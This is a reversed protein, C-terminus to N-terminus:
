AKERVLAAMTIVISALGLGVFGIWIFQVGSSEVAPELALEEEAVVEDNREQVTGLVDLDATVVPSDRFLTQPTGLSPEVGIDASQETACAALGFLSISVVIFAVVLHKYNTTLSWM